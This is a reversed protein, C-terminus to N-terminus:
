LMSKLKELPFFIFYRRRQCATGQFGFDCDCVGTEFDCKGRNSCEADVHVTNTETAPGSWAIGTPCKVLSCDAGTHKADCVCVGDVTCGGHGACVKNRDADRPCSAQCSILLLFLLALM